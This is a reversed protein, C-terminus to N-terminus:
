EKNTKGIAFIDEIEKDERLNTYTKVWDKEEGKKEEEAKTEVTRRAQKKDTEM